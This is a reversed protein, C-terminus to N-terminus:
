ECQWRQSVEGSEEACFHLGRAPWLGDAGTNTSDDVVVIACSHDVVNRGSRSFDPLSFFLANRNEQELVHNHLIERQFHLGGFVVQVSLKNWNASLGCKVRACLHQRCATHVSWGVVAPEM